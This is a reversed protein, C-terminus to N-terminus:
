ISLIQRILDAREHDGRARSYGYMDLGVTVLRLPTGNFGVVDYKRIPRRDPYVIVSLPSGLAAAASLAQYIHAEDPVKKPRTYKAEFTAVLAGGRKLAGDPIVGAVERENILLLPSRHKPEMEIALGPTRAVASLTRNLLTELLGWPEVAIELGISRGPDGVMSRNKLVASAIDWAPGYHAWQPPISRAAVAPNVYTPVPNGPSVATELLRLRAALRGDHTSRRFHGAVISLGRTFDNSADLRDREVPYVTPNLLATRVWKGVNLHGTLRRSALREHEYIQIPGDQALARELRRAYEFAVAGALDDKRASSKSKQSGSVSIRTSPELLQVVAAAWNGDTSIKPDVRIVSGNRLRISGVVNRFEISRGVTKLQSFRPRLEAKLRDVAEGISAADKASVVAPEHERFRSTNM